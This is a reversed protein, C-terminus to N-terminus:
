RAALRDTAHDAIDRLRDYLDVVGREIRILAVLSTDEVDTVDGIKNVGLVVDGHDLLAQHEAPDFIFGHTPSWAVADNPARVDPPDPMMNTM